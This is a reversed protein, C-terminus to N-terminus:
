ELGDGAPGKPPSIPPPWRRCVLGFMLVIAIAALIHLSAVLVMWQDYHIHAASWILGYLGVMSVGGALWRILFPRGQRPVERRFIWAMNGVFPLLLGVMVGSERSYGLREGIASGAFAFTLVVLGIPFGLIPTRWFEAWFGSKM